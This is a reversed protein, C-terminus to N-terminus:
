NEESQTHSHKRNRFRRVKAINGCDSMDCWHRSRNRSTDVFLWTCDPSGCARVRLYEDTTLLDVASKSVEWLTRDLAREKDIWEWTLDGASFELKQHRRAISIETNLINLDVKKPESQAALSKFIHYLADRLTRARDIVAAAESKRRRSMALLHQAEGKTFLGALQSWLILGQYNETEDPTPEDNGTQSSRKKAPGLVKDVTNIYDLCLSGGVFKVNKTSIDVAM